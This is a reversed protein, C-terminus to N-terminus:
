LKSIDIGNFWLEQNKNYGCEMIGRYKKGEMLVEVVAIHFDYQEQQEFEIEDIKKIYL